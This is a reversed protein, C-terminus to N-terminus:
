CPLTPAAVRASSAAVGSVQCNVEGDAFRSVVIRGLASDLASAIESALEPNANGSFLIM